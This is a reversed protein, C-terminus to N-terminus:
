ERGRTRWAWRVLFGWRMEEDTKGNPTLHQKSESSTKSTYVQCVRASVQSKHICILERQYPLLTTVSVPSVALWGKWAGRSGHNSWPFTGWLKLYKSMQDGAWLSGPTSCPLNATLVTTWIQKQWREVQQSSPGFSGWTRGRPSGWYGHSVTDGWLLLYIEEEISREEMLNSRDPIQDCNGLTVLM